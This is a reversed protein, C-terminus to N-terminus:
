QAPGLTFDDVKGPLLPPPGVGIYEAPLARGELCQAFLNNKGRGFKRSDRFGAFKLLDSTGDSYKLMTTIERENSFSDFLKTARGLDITGRVGNGKNPIGVLNVSIPEPDNELDFTLVTIPARPTRVKGKAIFTGASVAAVRENGKVIEDVYIDWEIKPDDGSHHNGFIAYGCWM